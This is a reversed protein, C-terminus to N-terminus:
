EDQSQPIGKGRGKRGGERRREVTSTPKKEGKGGGKLFLGEYRSPPRSFRMLEGLQEAHLGTALRVTTCKPM